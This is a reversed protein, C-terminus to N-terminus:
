RARAAGCTAAGPTSVVVAYKGVELSPPLTVRSEFEGDDNTPLSQVPIMQGNPDRLGVDVRVFGCQQGDAHVRGRIGFTEGRRASRDVLEFRVSAPDLAPRETPSVEPPPAPTPPASQSGPRNQGSSSRDPTSGSATLSAEVVGIGSQSGEPWEFPDAPPRHQPASESQSIRISGAAGGLDIRHWLEGDFAEVWAHAENRVMRAPIGLALATIVFGYARHRCVGKQSLSLEEYLSTGTRAVPLSASPAFSRFFHVLARLAESPSQSASVGVAALV